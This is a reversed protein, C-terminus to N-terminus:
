PYDGHTTLGTEDLHAQFNLALAFIAAPDPIVPDLTVDDIQYDASKGEAAAAAANLGDAGMALIEKLRTPLEPAAKPLAVFGTDDVMVGVGVEDGARYSVLRM